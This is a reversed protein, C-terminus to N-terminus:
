INNRTIAYEDESSDYQDLGRKHVIPKWDIYTDTGDESREKKKILTIKVEDNKIKWTCETPEILAPLRVAKYRYKTNTNGVRVVADLEFGQKLFVVNVKGNIAEQTDGSSAVPKLDDLYVTVCIVSEAVFRTNIPPERVRSAM